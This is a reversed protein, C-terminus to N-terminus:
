VVLLRTGAELAWAEFCDFTLFPTWDVFKHLQTKSLSTLVNWTEWGVRLLQFQLGRPAMTSYLCSVAIEPSRTILKRSVKGCSTMTQLQNKSKTWPGSSFYVCWGWSLKDQIKNKNKEKLALCSSVKLVGSRNRIMNKKNYFLSYFDTKTHVRRRARLGQRDTTHTVTIPAITLLYYKQLIICLTNWGGSAWSCYRGSTISGIHQLKQMTRDMNKLNTKILGKNERRSMFNVSPSKGELLCTIHRSEWTCQLTVIIAFCSDIAVIGSQKSNKRHRTSTRCLYSKGLVILIATNQKCFKFQRSTIKASWTKISGVHKPM